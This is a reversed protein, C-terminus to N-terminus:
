RCPVCGRSRRPRRHRRRRPTWWWRAWRRLHRRSGCRGRVSRLLGPRRARRRRRAANLGAAGRAGAIVFGSSRHGIQLVVWWLHLVLYGPGTFFDAFQVCFQRAPIEHDPGGAVDRLAQMGGVQHHDLRGSHSVVPQRGVVHHDAVEVADQDIAVVRRRGVRGRVGVDVAVHGLDVTYYM